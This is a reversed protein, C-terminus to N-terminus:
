GRKTGRGIGVLILALGSLLPIFGITNHSLFNWVAIAICLLGFVVFMVAVDRRRRNAFEAEESHLGKNAM